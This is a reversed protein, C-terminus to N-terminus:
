SDNELSPGKGIVTNGRIREVGGLSLPEWRKEDKRVHKRSGGGQSQARETTKGGAGKELGSKILLFKRTPGTGKAIVLHSEKRTSKGDKGRNEKGKELAGGPKGVFTGIAQGKKPLRIKKRL